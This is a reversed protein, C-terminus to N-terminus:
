QMGCAVLLLDVALVPAALLRRRNARLTEHKVEIAISRARLDEHPVIMGAISRFHKSQLCVVDYPRAMTNRTCNLSSQMCLTQVHECLSRPLPKKAFFYVKKRRQREYHILATMRDGDVPLPETALGGKRCGALGLPASKMEMAVHRIAKFVQVWDLFASKMAWCIAFIAFM